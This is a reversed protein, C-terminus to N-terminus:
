YLPTSPAARGGKVQLRGVLGRGKRPGRVIFYFHFVLYVLSM